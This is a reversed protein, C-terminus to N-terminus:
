RAEFDATITADVTIDSPRLEVTAMMADEMMGYGKRAMPGGGVDGGPRLGDEWIRHLILDSLGLADAYGRARAQADRVASIRMERQTAALTDDTLTWTIGNVRAGAIVGVKSTWESLAAFDRFTVRLEASAVEVHLAVESDKVYRAETRSWVTNAHVLTAAGTGVLTEAQSSLDTHLKAVADVVEARDPGELAVEIHATGREAPVGAIDVM